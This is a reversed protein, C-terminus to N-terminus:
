MKELGSISPLSQWYCNDPVGITWMLKGMDPYSLKKYMWAIQPRIWDGNSLKYTVLVHEGNEPQINTADIWKNM